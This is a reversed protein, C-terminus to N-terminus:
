AVKRNVGLRPSEFLGVLVNVVTSYGVEHGKEFPVSLNFFYGVFGCIILGTVNDTPVKGASDGVNSNYGVYFGILRVAVEDDVVNARPLYELITQEVEFDNTM